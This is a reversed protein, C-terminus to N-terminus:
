YTLLLRDSVVEQELTEGVMQFRRLMSRGCNLMVEREFLGAPIPLDCLMKGSRKTGDISLAVHVGRAKCRAITRILRHFSFTQAGYLIAQTHRYPPDCYVLDGAKASEMVAEFDGRLFVAGKTRVHWTDVRKGFAEPSIPNHIGCPTSMFGDEQRFRVVGGYCSRSLFLLDAGNPNANYSARIREYEKSRNGSTFERWRYSYWRKLEEPNAGLTEWIDVLPKLIDSAVAEEPALTALVAGSGLFPEFYTGFSVPFYGIIEHAFRQKNGIWKLLQPKLSPVQRVPATGIELGAGFLTLQALEM